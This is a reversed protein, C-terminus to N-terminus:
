DIHVEVPRKRRGRAGVRETPKGSDAPPERGKASDSIFRSKVAVAEGEFSLHSTSGFSM